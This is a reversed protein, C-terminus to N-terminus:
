GQNRRLFDEGKLQYALAPIGMCTTKNMFEMGIKEIVRISPLNEPAVRAEIEKLNLNDFGYQLVAVASETAIGNGWYEPFFRYGLDIFHDYPDEILGSLGLWAGDSKRRVVWRGFGQQSQSRRSSLIYSVSEELETWIPMGLYKMVQPLSHLDFLKTADSRKLLSFTLNASEFLAASKM